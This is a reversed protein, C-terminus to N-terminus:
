TNKNEPIMIRVNVTNGNHEAIFEGNYQRIVQKVSIIGIGHFADSPKTTKFSLDKKTYTNSINIVLFGKIQKIKVSIMPNNEEKCAEIANDFLNGLMSAFHASSVCCNEPIQANVLFKIGQGKAIRQKINLITDVTDNGSKYYLFRKGLLDNENKLFNKIGDMDNKEALTMLNLINHKYDHVEKKWLMFTSETDAISQELMQNKLNSLQLMQKSEDYETLKFACFFLVTFLMLLILFLVAFITSNVVQRYADSFSIIVTIVMMVVAVSLLLFSYKKSLYKKKNFIRNICLTFCLLLTKSCITAIMRHICHEHYIESAPVDILYSWVNVVINDTIAIPLLFVLSFFIIKIIDTQYVIVAIGIIVAVGIGFSLLSFLEIKNIKIILLAGIGAIFVQRFVFFDQDVKKLFTGCFVSCLLCELFTALYEVFWYIYNM